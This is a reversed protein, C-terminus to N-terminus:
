PVRPAGDREFQSPPTGDDGSRGFVLVLGGAILAIPLVWNWPINVDIVLALLWLTGCAAIVLGLLVTFPERRM